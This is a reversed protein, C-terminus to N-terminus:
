IDQHWTRQFVAESKQAVSLKGLVSTSKRKMMNVWSLIFM